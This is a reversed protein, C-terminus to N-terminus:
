AATQHARMYADLDEQAIRRLRGVKSSKLRGSVLLNNMLSKGVKLRARAETPTLYTTM